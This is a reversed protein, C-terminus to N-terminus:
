DASASYRLEAQGTAISRKLGELHKCVRVPCLLDDRVLELEDQLTDVKEKLFDKEEQSHFTCATFYIQSKRFASQLATEGNLTVGHCILLGATYTSLFSM